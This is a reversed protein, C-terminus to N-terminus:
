YVKKGTRVKIATQSTLANLKMLKTNIRQIEYNNKIVPPESYSDSDSDLSSNSSNQSSEGEKKKGLRFTVSKSFM